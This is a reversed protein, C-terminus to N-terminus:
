IGKRALKSYVEDAEKRSDQALGARDFIREPDEGKKYARVINTHRLTKPTLEKEIGTQKKLDAFILQVFRDTISFLYQEPHYNELYQKYVEVFRAPLAVKREKIKSKENNKIWVEPNFTDSIDIDALKLNLLEGSKMGTELLLQVILYTRPDKSAEVYLKKIEDEYLYDPLPSRIRSNNITATPDETIVELSKLWLFYNIIASVKRNVTKRDLKEGRPSLLGAIWQEIDHKTIEGITHERIFLSFRRVDSFYKEFTSNSYNSSQLYAAYAPLTSMIRSEKTPAVPEILQPQQIKGSGKQKFMPLQKVSM